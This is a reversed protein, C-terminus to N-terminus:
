PAGALTVEVIDGVIKVRPTVDSAPPKRAIAAIREVSETTTVGIVWGGPSLRRIVARQVGKAGALYKQEAQVLGWPTRPSLRVLVVGPEGIPTDEGSIVPAAGLSTKVPPVVDSAAAVLARDIAAAVVSPESGRAALVATGQRTTFVVKGGRGVLRIHATVLVGPMAVGRAAVPSGVT